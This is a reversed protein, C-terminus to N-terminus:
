VAPGPSQHRTEVVVVVVVRSSNRVIQSPDVVVSTSQNGEEGENRERCGPRSLAIKGVEGKLRTM